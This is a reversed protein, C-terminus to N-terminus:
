NKGMKAFLEQQRRLLSAFPRNEEIPCYILSTVALGKIAGMGMVGALVGSSEESYQHTRLLAAWYVGHRDYGFHGINETAGQPLEAIIDGWDLQDLSAPELPEDRQEAKLERMFRQSNDLIKLQGRELSIGLFSYYSLPTEM